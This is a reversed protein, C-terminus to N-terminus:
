DRYLNYKPDNKYKNGDIDYRKQWKINLYQLNHKLFLKNTPNKKLTASEDHFINAKGYYVVKKKMNCSIALGLDVDDFAWHYKEDMGKIGSKNFTCVQRFYEAKTIAVAGTVVQFLRNHEADADSMQGNRYNCPTGYQPNFTVGAHQLKQTGTYLLRAGVLGVTHDKQIISLMNRISTTDNFVIDNNLLMIHDRDESAAESFLLNCGESFNQRNDKYPVVKINGEWASAMAVTNDTSANDKILWTYNIDQLAPMLSKYLNALREQGNWTLTLIYLM